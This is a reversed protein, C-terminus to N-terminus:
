ATGPTTSTYFETRLKLLQIQNTRRNERCISSPLGSEEHLKWAISMQLRNRRSRRYQQLPTLKNWAEIYQREAARDARELEEDSMALHEEFSLDEDYDPDVDKYRNVLSGRFTLRKAPQEPQEIRGTKVPAITTAVAVRVDNPKGYKKKRHSARNM